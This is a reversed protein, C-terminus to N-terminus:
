ALEAARVMGLAASQTGGHWARWALLLLPWTLPLSLGSEALPGLITRWLGCKDGMFVTNVPRSKPYKGPPKYKIPKQKRGVHQCGAM